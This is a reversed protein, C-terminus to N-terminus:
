TIVRFPIDYIDSMFGTCQLIIWLVAWVKNNKGKLTMLLDLRLLSGIDAHNTKM